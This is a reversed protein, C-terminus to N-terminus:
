GPDPAAAGVLRQITVVLAPLDLPKTVYGNAGAAYCRERDGPLALATVALIPIDRTTELGRLRRIADLGDAGPMQLDMLVADPRSKRCYQVAEAGHRAVTTAIGRSSLYESIFAASSDNDEALLVRIPSRPRAVDKAAPSSPLLTQLAPDPEARAPQFEPKKKLWPLSVTFTSGSGPTSEIQVGGGHLAAMNLVLSLGLGTGSHRRALSGDLQTFPQFLRPIKERAIGTGSDSVAFRIVRAEADGTVRLGVCGGDPTFKVANTLLNVLIQQLRRGDILAADAGPDIHFGVSLNKKEAAKEILQLSADCISKVGVIDYHLALKGAQIKAFDLIDSILELLHRGSGEIVGVARLTKENLPGYVEDRLSQAMGLIANLPTRLEHSMSALFEDKMKLAEGLEENLVVLEETREAVRTELANQLEWQATINRVVMVAEDEAFRSIRAEFRETKGSTELSYQVETVEGTRFASDLGAQLGEAASPPLFEALRKGLFSESPSWITSVSSSHYDALTGDRRFWFVLDALTSL